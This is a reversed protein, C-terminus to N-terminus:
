SLPAVRCYPQRFPVALKDLTLRRRTCEREVLASGGPPYIDLRERFLRILGLARSHSDRGLHLDIM